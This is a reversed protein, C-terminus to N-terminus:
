DENMSVHPDGGQTKEGGSESAIHYNQWGQSERCQAAKLATPECCTSLSKCEEIYM